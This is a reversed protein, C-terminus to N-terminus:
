PPGLTDRSPLREEPDLDGRPEKVERGDDNM